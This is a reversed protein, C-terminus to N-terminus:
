RTNRGVGRRERRRRLFAYAVAGVVVLASTALFLGVYEPARRGLYSYLFTQPVIGLATAAM